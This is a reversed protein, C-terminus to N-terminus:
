CLGMLCSFSLLKGEAMTKYLSIVWLLELFAILEKSLLVVSVQNAPSHHRPTSKLHPSDAYASVVSWWPFVRTRKRQLM